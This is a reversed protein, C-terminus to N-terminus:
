KITVTMSDTHKTGRATQTIKSNDLTIVIEKRINGQSSSATELIVQYGKDIYTPDIAFDGEFVEGNRLSAGSLADLDEGARKAARIWKRLAPKYNNSYGMQQFTKVFKGKADALYVVYFPQLRFGTDKSDVTIHVKTAGAPLGWVICAFIFLLKKM